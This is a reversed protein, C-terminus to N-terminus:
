GTFAACAVRGAAGGIPQSTHDDPNEHIIVAFGDDDLLPYPGNEAAAAETPYLSVGWRFIEATARGDDAAYINPLDARESGQQNLLGHEHADPDVHGGSAKFGAAIDSCDGKEHLHMGHWGPSLGAVDVRILVGGPADTFVVHGVTAGAANVFTGAADAESAPVLAELMPRAEHKQGCAALAFISVALTARISLPFM